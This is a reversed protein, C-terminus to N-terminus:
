GDRSVLEQRDAREARDAEVEARLLAFEEALTRTEEELASVEWSLHICVLLLFVIGLFLVLSVGSAVGVLDAVGDLLRPFLSLPIVVFLLGLWLMGYKERLQRRRLLEVITALLVLGTLGTVLTLKM